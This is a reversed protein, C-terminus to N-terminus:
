RRRQNKPKVGRSHDHRELRNSAVRIALALDRAPGIDLALTKGDVMLVVKSTEYNYSVQVGPTEPEKAASMAGARLAELEADTLQTKQM